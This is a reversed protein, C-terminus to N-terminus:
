GFYNYPSVTATTITSLKQDDQDNELVLEFSVEGEIVFYM